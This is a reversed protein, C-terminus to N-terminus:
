LRPIDKELVQPGDKRFATMSSPLTVIEWNRHPSMPSVQGSAKQQTTFRAGTIFILFLKSGRQTFGILLCLHGTIEGEDLEQLVKQKLQTSNQICEPRKGRCCSLRRIRRGANETKETTDSEKRGCTSYGVLSRQGPIRWSLMSSHTAM